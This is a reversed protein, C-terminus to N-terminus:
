VNSKIPKIGTVWNDVNIVFDDGAIKEKAGLIDIYGCIYKEM